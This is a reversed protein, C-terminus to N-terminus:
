EQTRRVAQVFRQIKAPDKGRGKEREVGSSVDAVDPKLLRIAESVNDPTLGGALIWLKKDRPIQRLMTWDSVRGSGPKPADFVYGAIKECNRMQPLEALDSGNFARLIPLRVAKLVDQDLTGHIQIAQFGAEEIQRCIEETPSVTVAVPCIEPNLAHIIDCAASIPINRRSSPTFVVMGAFEVKNQNLYVAEEPSTLGCIKIKTM